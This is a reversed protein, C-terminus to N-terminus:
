TSSTNCRDRETAIGSRHSFDASHPVKGSKVERQGNHRLTHRACSAAVLSGTPARGTRRLIQNGSQRESLLCGRSAQIDLVRIAVLDLRSRRGNNQRRPVPAVIRLVISSSIAASSAASSAALGRGTDAAVGSGTNSHIPTIFVATSVAPVAGLTVLRTTANTDAETNSARLPM